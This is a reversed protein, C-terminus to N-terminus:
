PCVTIGFDVACVMIAAQAMALALGSMAPFGRPLRGEMLDIMMALDRHAFFTDLLL